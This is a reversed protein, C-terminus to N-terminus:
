LRDKIIEKEITRNKWIKEVKENKFFKVMKEM